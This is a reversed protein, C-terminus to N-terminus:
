ATAKDCNAFFSLQDCGTFAHFFLFGTARDIGICVFITHAPYFVREQGTGFDLSLEHVGLDPFLAVSIIVVDTDSSNILLRSLKNSAMSKTHLFVRTDAEEHYCTAPAQLHPHNKSLAANEFATM